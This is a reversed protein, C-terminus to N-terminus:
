AKRIQIQPCMDNWVSAPFVAPMAGTTVGTKLRSWSARGGNSSQRVGNWPLYPLQGSNGHWGIVQPTATYSDCLVSLWWIGTIPITITTAPTLLRGSGGGTGITGADAVLTQGDCYGTTPNHPYVGLRWTSNALATVHVALRDYVGAEIWAPHATLRGAANLSGYTHATENGGLTLYDGSVVPSSLISIGQPGTPGQIGQPGTLGQTGQPGTPGTAGQTGQPGTPGVLGQSGQPGSSGPIGQPGTPGTVGPTGQAGSPGTPGVLGSPGMPGTDIVRISSPEPVVLVTNENVVIRQTSPDSTVVITQQTM